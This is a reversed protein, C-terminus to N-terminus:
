KLNQLHKTIAQNLEDLILTDVEPDGQGPFYLHRTQDYHLTLVLSGRQPDLLYCHLIQYNPEPGDFRASHHFHLSAYFEAEENGLHVEFHSNRILDLKEM